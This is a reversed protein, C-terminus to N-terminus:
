LLGYYGDFIGGGYENALGRMLSKEEETLTEWKLYKEAREELVDFAAKGDLEKTRPSDWLLFIFNPYKAFDVKNVM